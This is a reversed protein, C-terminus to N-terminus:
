EEEFLHVVSKESRAESRCVASLLLLLIFNVLGANPFKVDVNNDSRDFMILVAIIGCLFYIFLFTNM